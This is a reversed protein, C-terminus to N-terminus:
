IFSVKVNPMMPPRMPPMFQQSMNSMQQQYRQAMNSMNVSAQMMAQANNPGNTPFHGPPGPPRNNMYNNRMQQLAHPPPGNQQSSPHPGMPNYNPGMGMPNFNQAGQHSLLGRLSDMNTPHTSSSVHPQPPGMHPGMYRSSQPGDQPFNRNMQMAAAAAPFNPPVNPVNPGYLGPSTNYGSNPGGMGPRLPPTVNPSTGGSQKQRSSSSSSSQQQQQQQQQQQSSMQQSGSTSPVGPPTATVNTPSPPPYVKGDVLITGIRSIVNQLEPVNSLYLQVRVPIEPNPIDARQCKVKNLHRSLTKKSYLVAGDSGNELANQM